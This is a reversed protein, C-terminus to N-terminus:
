SRKVRARSSVGVSRDPGLTGPAPPWWWGVGPGAPDPTPYPGTHTTRPTSAVWGVQPASARGTTARNPVRAAFRAATGAASRGAKRALCSRPTSNTRHAIMPRLLRPLGTHTTASPASAVAGNRM